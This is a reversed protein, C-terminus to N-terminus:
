RYTYYFTIRPVLDYDSKSLGSANKKRNLFSNFWVNPIIHVNKHPAYDFGAVAFTETNYANYSIYSNNPNFNKDPDYGDFRAFYGLKDKIIMGRLYFSIGLAKLDRTSSVPMSPWVTVGNIHQYMFTEIGATVWDSQWALMAKYLSRIKHKGPTKIDYRDYDAYLDLILHKDFFKFYIEAYLKKFRDTEFKASNGNGAMLNYGMNENMFKGQLGIGLDNSSGLRNIDSVTKEVSRYAWIKEPLLSWTPTAQQGIVLDNHYFVNKWRLNASKIYVARNGSPLVDGEHSLLFDATFKESIQYEYGLYVRRLDIANFDKEYTSYQKNGRLASDSHAKFFVDGFVTGWVKGSPKFEKPQIPTLEKKQVVASDQSFVPIVACLVFLLVVQKIM